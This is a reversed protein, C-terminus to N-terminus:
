IHFKFKQLKLVIFTTKQIFLFIKFTAKPLSWDEHEHAFLDREIIPPELSPNDIEQPWTIKLVLEDKFVGLVFSDSNWSCSISPVLMIFYALFIIMLFNFKLFLRKEVNVILFTNFFYNLKCKSIMPCKMSKNYTSYLTQFFIYILFTSSFYTKFQHNNL